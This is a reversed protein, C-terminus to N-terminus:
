SPTVPIISELDEDIDPEPVKVEDKKHLFMIPKKPKQLRGLRAQVRLKKAILTEDPTRYSLLERNLLDLHNDM